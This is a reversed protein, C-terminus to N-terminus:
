LMEQNRETTSLTVFDIDLFRFFVQKVQKVYGIM